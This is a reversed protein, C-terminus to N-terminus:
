VVDSPVRPGVSSASLPRLANAAAAAARRQGGPQIRPRERYYSSDKAQLKNLYSFHLRGTRSTPPIRPPKPTPPANRSFPGLYLRPKSNEQTM